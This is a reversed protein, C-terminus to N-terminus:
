QSTQPEGAGSPVVLGEATEPAGATVLSGSGILVGDVTDRADLRSAEVGSPEARAAWAPEFSVRLSPVDDVRRRPARSPAPSVCTGDIGAISIYEGLFTIAGEGQQFYGGLATWGDM